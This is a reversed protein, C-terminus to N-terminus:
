QRRPQQRRNPAEPEYSPDREEDDYGDVPWDDEEVVDVEPARQEEQDEEAAEGDEQRPRRLQEIQAANLQVGVNNLLRIALALADHNNQNENWAQEIEDDEDNEFGMEGMEGMQRMADNNYRNVEALQDNVTVTECMNEFEPDSGRPPLPFSCLICWCSQMLWGWDPTRFISYNPFNAVQLRDFMPDERTSTPAEHYKYPFITDTRTGEMHGDERFLAKPLEQHSWWPDNLIWAPGASLKFRFSWINNRLENPRLTKRKSDIFSLKYAERACGKELLDKAEQPIFVKDKWLQKVFTRWLLDDSCAQQWRPCVASASVVSVPGCRELIQRILELPLLVFPDNEHEKSSMDDVTEM